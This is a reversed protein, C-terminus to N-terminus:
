KSGEMESNKTKAYDKNLEDAIQSEKSKSTDDVSSSPMTSAICRTPKSSLRGGVGESKKSHSHECLSKKRFQKCSCPFINCNDDILNGHNLEKHGCECVDEGQEIQNANKTIENNLSSVECLSPKKCEKKEQKENYSTFGSVRYQQFPFLEIEFYRFPQRVNDLPLGEIEFKGRIMIRPM